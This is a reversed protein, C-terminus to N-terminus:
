GIAPPARAGMTPSSEKTASTSRAPEERTRAPSPAVTSRPRTSSRRLSKRGRASRQSSSKSTSAVALAYEAGCLGGVRAGPERTM